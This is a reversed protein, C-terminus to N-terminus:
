YVGIINTADTGNAFVKEVRLPHIMGAALNVFTVTGNNGAMTVKVDGSVGVYLGRTLAPLNLTDSPTIEFAKLAPSTLDKSM